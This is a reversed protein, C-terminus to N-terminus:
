LLNEPFLTELAGWCKKHFQYFPTNKDCYEWKCNERISLEYVLKEIFGEKHLLKGACVDIMRHYINFPIWQRTKVDFYNPAMSKEESGIARNLLHTLEHLLSFQQEALLNEQKNGIDLFDTEQSGILITYQNNYISPVLVGAIGSSFKITIKYRFIPGLEEISEFFM